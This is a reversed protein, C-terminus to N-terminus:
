KSPTSESSASSSSNYVRVFEPTAICNVTAINNRPEANKAEVYKIIEKTRTVYKTQIEVKAEQYNDKATQGQNFKAEIDAIQAAEVKAMIKEERADGATDWLWMSLLVLVGISIGLGVLKQVENWTTGLPNLLVENTTAM